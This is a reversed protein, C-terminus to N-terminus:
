WKERLEPFSCLGHGEQIAEQMKNLTAVNSYEHLISTRVPPCATIVSIHKSIYLCM